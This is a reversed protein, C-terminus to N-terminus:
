RLSDLADWVGSDGSPASTNVGSQGEKDVRFHETQFNCAKEEDSDDCNPYAPFELVIEERLLDTVDISSQTGIEVSASFDDVAVTSQFPDLCRVCNFEVLASLRGKLFLEGEFRQAHLDYLLPGVAKIDAGDIGFVAPDLEGSYQKGEEPLHDLEIRLSKMFAHYPCGDGSVLRPKTRGLFFTRSGVLNACM